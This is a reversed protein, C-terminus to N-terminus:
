VNSHFRYCVSQCVSVVSLKGALASPLYIREAAMGPHIGVVVDVHESKMMDGHRDVACVRLRYTRGHRLGSVNYWNHEREVATRRWEDLGDGSAEETVDRGTLSYSM